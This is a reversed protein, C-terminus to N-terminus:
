LFISPFNNTTSRISMEGVFIEGVKRQIEAVSLLTFLFVQIILYTRPKVIQGHRGIWTRKM